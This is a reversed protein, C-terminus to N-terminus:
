TFKIISVYSDINKLVLDVLAPDFHKGREKKFLEIIDELPWAEKYCRKHYLADFVDAVATIRGYIHIDEAKKKKPYGSGDYKEHHEHAIIAAAKLIERKSNKLIDYGIKAHTRMIAFEKTTLKEPKLLINDRIGIKGVDHMPSAMRLLIAEDDSLGYNKALVYSFESVRYVHKSAEKSRIEVVEGLRELIEKQTDLIENNLSINNFAIAINNSFITILNTDLTSINKCGSLYVLYTINESFKFYGIYNDEIFISKKNKITTEIQEIINKELASFNRQKKFDGTSAIIKYSDNNKEVSFANNTNISKTDNNLNLISILQTLVDQAFVELTREESISNTAEIVKELGEKNEKIAKLDQYSRIATVITSFLKKSTLETKEKYDNIRYKVIVEEEPAFGPQGTRLVIRILNNNLEERIRKTVILGADTTEMVVDLLVLTIDNNAKVMEIAEQGNYASLFKLKRGDLQFNSLVTKTMTHVVPEDDVILIKWFSDNQTQIKKAKSFKLNGM